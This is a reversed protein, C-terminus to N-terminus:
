FLLMGLVRRADVRGFDHDVMRMGRNDGIVFYERPGITVESYNWRQRKHVYPETLPAGNIEVIGDVISVRESPLGVIRKVYLVNPGALRIAVVDGRRPARIRYVMRNVLNLTSDHYAPEMSIGSVRVPTLLWGFTIVSVVTLVAIRTLTRRPDRGLTIRRIWSV